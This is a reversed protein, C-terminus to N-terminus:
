STRSSQVASRSKLRNGESAVRFGSMPYDVCAEGSVTRRIDRRGRNGVPRSCYEHLTSVLFNLHIEIVGHAAQRPPLKKAHLGRQRISLPDVRRRPGFTKASLLSRPHIMRGISTRSERMWYACNTTLGRARQNKRSSTRRNSLKTM